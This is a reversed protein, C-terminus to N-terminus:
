KTGRIRHRQTALPEDSQRSIERALEALEALRKERAEMAPTPKLGAIGLIEKWRYMWDHRRLAEEANRCSIERLQEPEALLKSIVAVVDSGDPQVEIVAHPWDFHRRFAECDPAQGVLVAGAALGEFYRRGIAVQGQTEERFNMKGPAVIFFRSRKTINAYLDRHQAYDRTESNGANHLTDYIYFIKKAALKLLSRHIGEWRRGISCVDVVRAPPNPFPSFRITDVGALIEYCPRGIADSLDKGSGPIGLIVYDFRSLVPLWYQLGPVSNAWLEDIWCVSTRCHDRWGQIANAYWVDQLFPCFLMFLEYDKTLRVPRLGPNLSVLRRSVDHYVLRRLVSNGFAFRNSAELHIVDVDDCGMLVDEAEYSGARFVDRAFASFTPM